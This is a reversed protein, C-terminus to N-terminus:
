NEENDTITPNPLIDSSEFAPANDAGENSEPNESSETEQSSPTDSQENEPAPAPLSVVTVQLLRTLAYIGIALSPLAHIVIESRVIGSVILAPILSIGNCLGFFVAAATCVTLRLPRDKGVFSLMEACLMLMAFVASIQQMLKLPSNMPVTWDFYETVLAFFLYVHAGVGTLFIKQKKSIAFYLIALAAGIVRLLASTDSSKVVLSEWLGVTVFVIATMASSLRVSVHASTPDPALAFHQTRANKQAIFIYAGAGLVFLAVVIYLLTSLIGSEHYGVAKDFSFLLALTRLLTFVVTLGLTALAFARYIKRSDNM